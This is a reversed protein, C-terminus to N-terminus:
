KWDLVGRIKQSLEKMSFPKQIFGNSGSELVEKTQGDIPYGSSFLVRIEGNIEKLSDYAESGGTEPMIMDLIVMDIKNRNEKYIKIADRGSMAIMVKYGMQELMQTGVEIILEDDDVLLVTEFGKLLGNTMEEEGIINRIFLLSRRPAAL